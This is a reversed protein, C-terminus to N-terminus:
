LRILMFSVKLLSDDYIRSDFEVKPIKFTKEAESSVARNIQDLFATYNEEENCVQMVVDLLDLLEEDEDRAQSETHLEPTFNSPSKNSYCDYDGEPAILEDIKMTSTRNSPIESCSWSNSPQMFSDENKNNVKSKLHELQLSLYKIQKQINADM